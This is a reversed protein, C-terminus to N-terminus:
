PDLDRDKECIYRADTFDLEAPPHCTNHERSLFAQLIMPTWSPLRRRKIAM